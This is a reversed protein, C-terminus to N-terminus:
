SGFKRGRKVDARRPRRGQQASSAGCQASPSGMPEARIHCSEEANEFGRLGGGLQTCPPAAATATVQPAAPTWTSAPLRGLPLGGIGAGPPGRGSRRRAVHEGARHGAVARAPRRGRPGRDLIPAAAADRATPAARRCRRCRAAPWRGCRVRPHEAHTASRWRLSRCRSERRLGIRSLTVTDALDVEPQAGEVAGM